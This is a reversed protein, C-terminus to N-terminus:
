ARKRQRLGSDDDGTATEQQDPPRMLSPTDVNEDYTTAGATEEGIGASGAADDGQKSGGSGLQEFSGPESGTVMQQVAWPLQVAAAQQSALAEALSEADYSPPLGLQQELELVRQKLALNELRVGSVEQAAGLARAEADTLQEQARRTPLFRVAFPLLLCCCVQM